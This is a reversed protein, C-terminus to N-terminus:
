EPSFDFWTKIHHWEVPVNELLFMKLLDELCKVCMTETAYAATLRHIWFHFGFDSVVRCWSPHVIILIVSLLLSVCPHPSFPIRGHKKWTAWNAFFRGPTCSVQTRARSWSSGRSFSIVVWDLMKAQFIRHISSGSLICDMPNCLTM